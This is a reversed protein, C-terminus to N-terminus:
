RSCSRARPHRRCRASRVGRADRECRVSRRRLSRSTRLFGGHTFRLTRGHRGQLFGDRREHRRPAEEFHDFFFHEALAQLHELIAGTRQALKEGLRCVVAVLVVDDEGVPAAPVVVLVEGVNRRDCPRQLLPVADGGAIPHRDEGGVTGLPDEGEPRHDREAPDHHRHVTPPGALLDAVAEVQCSRLQEHGVGASEFPEPALRGPNREQLDSVLELRQATEGGVGPEGLRRDGFVVRRDHEERRAGGAARLRGHETM